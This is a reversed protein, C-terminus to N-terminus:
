EFENMAEEEETLCSSTVAAVPVPVAAVVDLQGMGKHSVIVMEKLWKHDWPFFITTKFLDPTHSWVENQPNMATNGWRDTSTSRRGGMAMKVEKNLTTPIPAKAGPKSRVSINKEV